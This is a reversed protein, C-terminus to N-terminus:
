RLPCAPEVDEKVQLLELGLNDTQWAAWYILASGLGGTLATINCLSSIFSYHDSLLVPM